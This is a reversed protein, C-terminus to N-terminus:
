PTFNFPYNASTEMARSSPPFDIGQIVAIVCSTVAPAKLTSREQNLEASKVKGGPDLVFHVVVDGQLDKDGKRADEYCKRAAARHAVVRARIVDMTRTEPGKGNTSAEHTVPDRAVSDEPASQGSKKAGAWGTEDNAPPAAAPPPASAGDDPRIERGAAEPTVPAPAPDSACASASLFAAILLSSCSYPAHM